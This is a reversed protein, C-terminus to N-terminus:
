KSEEKRNDFDFHQQLKKIDKVFIFVQGLKDEQLWWVNEKLIKILFGNLYTGDLLDVHIKIKEDLFFKLKENLENIENIEM